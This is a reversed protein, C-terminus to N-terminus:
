RHRRGHVRADRRAQRQGVIVGRPPLLVEDWQGRRCAWLNIGDGLRWRGWGGAALVSLISRALSRFGTGPSVAATGQNVSHAGCLAAASRGVV